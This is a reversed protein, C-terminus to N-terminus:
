LDQSPWVKNCIRNNVPPLKVTVASREGCHVTVTDLLLCLKEDNTLIDDELNLRDFLNSDSSLHLANILGIVSSRVNTFPAQM